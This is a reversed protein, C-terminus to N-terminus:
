YNKEIFKVIADQLVSTFVAKGEETLHLGDNSFHREPDSTLEKSADVMALRHRRCLFFLEQAIEAVDNTGESGRDFRPLATSILIKARPRVRHVEKTFQHLHEVVIAPRDGKINNSGAHVVVLPNDTASKLVGEVRTMLNEVRIGPYCWTIANSGKSARVNRVLSDGMLHVEPLEALREKGDTLSIKTLENSCNKVSPITDTEGSM